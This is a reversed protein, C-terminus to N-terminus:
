AQGVKKAKKSGKAVDVLVTGVTPVGVDSLAGIMNGFLKARTQHSRAVGLAAGAFRSM